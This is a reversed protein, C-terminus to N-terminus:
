AFKVAGGALVTFTSAATKIITFSYADIASANGAAPATGGSWKPTVAVSDVQFVTPYYATAGNTNLFVCSISDGTALNSNVNTFNLTFNASANSTYYLVGQTQTDFAVTGTAATASITYREEPSKLLSNNHTATNTTPSTLTKNTLTDTTALGVLTDTSTPLTITGTNSISSIIPTTLTKNTLTQTGTLTVVSSNIAVSPIPGTGSTVTIGTGGQVETIDGVPLNTTVSVRTDTINANLISTAGAAVAITALSLSNTPTAPAVPSGAPTGAVVTFTVNNTAGAYYSDNVTVVVKDIRPNTPDAATVSLQTAADNYFQYVGMNTTFNGVIAGWGAAVQVAMGPTGAQSVALSSTGIIGTTAIISQMSLRDNEAPHSGNQLWSPPTRLAM